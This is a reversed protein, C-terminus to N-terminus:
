SVSCVAPRDTRNSSRSSRAPTLNLSASKIPQGILIVTPSFFRLSPITSNFFHLSFTFVTTCISFRTSSILFIYHCKLNRHGRGVQGICFTLCNLADEVCGVETHTM